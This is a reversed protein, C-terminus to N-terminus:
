GNIIPGLIAAALLLLIIILLVWVVVSTKYKVHPTALRIAQYEESFVMKGKKSYLLYLIYGNILTGVPFGLLGLGAFVGAVHRVKSSLARLASGMWLYLVGFGILFVTMVASVDGYEQSFAFGSIGGALIMLIAGLYYLIGISRISAEHGIHEQRIQVADPSVGPIVEAIEATPAQYPNQEM